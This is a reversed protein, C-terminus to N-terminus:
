HSVVAVVVVVVVAIATLSRIHALSRTSKKKGVEVILINMCDQTFKDIPM